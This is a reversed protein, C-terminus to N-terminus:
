FKETGLKWGVFRPDAVASKGELCDLLDGGHQIRDSYKLYEELNRRVQGQVVLLGGRGQHPPGDLDKSPLWSLSRGKYDDAGAHRSLFIWGLPRHSLM